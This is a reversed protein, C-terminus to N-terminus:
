PDDYVLNDMVRLSNLGLGERRHDISALAFLRHLSVALSFLSTPLLLTRKFLSPLLEPLHLTGPGLESVRPSRFPRFGLAPRSIIKKKKRFSLQAMRVKEVEGPFRLHVM